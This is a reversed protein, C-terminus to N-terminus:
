PLSEPVPRRRRNRGAVLLAGAVGFSAVGLVGVLFLPSATQPLQRGQRPPLQSGQPTSDQFGSTSAVLQEAPPTTQIVAAVPMEQQEPTVAVLPVTKLDPDAAAALAIAPVVVRSTAALELARRKPYVFEHGWNRGPYFWARLTEPAGVPVENFTVVTRDTAELRYNAIALVIAIPRSGDASSIRVIHRDGLSDVLQFMYTGAPLVHGPIEFPQSFTLVTQHNMNQGVVVAPTAVVLALALGLLVTKRITM